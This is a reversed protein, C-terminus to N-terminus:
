DESALATALLKEMKEGGRRPFEFAFILILAAVGFALWARRKAAAGRVVPTDRLVWADPTPYRRARLIRVGLILLYLAYVVAFTTVIAFFLEGVARTQEAAQRTSTLTLANAADLRRTLVELALFAAAGLIALLLGAMVRHRTSSRHIEPEM